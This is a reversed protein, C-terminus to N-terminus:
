QEEKLATIIFDWAPETYERCLTVDSTVSRVFPFAEKIIEESGPDLSVIVDITKNLIGEGQAFANVFRYYVGEEESLHVESHAIKGSFVDLALFVLSLGEGTKMQLTDICYVQKPGTAKPTTM